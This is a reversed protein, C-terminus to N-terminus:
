SDLCVSNASVFSLSPSFKDDSLNFSAANLIACIIWFCYNLELLGILLFEFNDDNSGNKSSLQTILTPPRILFANIVLSALFGFIM